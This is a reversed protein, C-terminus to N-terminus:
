APEPDFAAEVVPFVVSVSSETVELERLDPECDRPEELDLCRNRLSRVIPELDLFSATLAAEEESAGELEGPGGPGGPSVGKYIKKWM